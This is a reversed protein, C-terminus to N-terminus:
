AEPEAERVRSPRTSWQSLPEPEAEDVAIEPLPEPEPEAEAEDDAPEPEAEDVVPETEPEAEETDASDAPARQEAAAFEAQWAAWDVAIGDQSWSPAGDDAISAESVDDSTVADDVVPPTDAPFATSEAPEAEADAVDPGAAEADVEVEASESDAFLSSLGRVVRAPEPVVAAGADDQGHAGTGEQPDDDSDTEETAARQQVELWWPVPAAPAPAADARPAAADIGDVAASDATDPAAATDATGPFDAATGRGGWSDANEVEVALESSVWPRPPLESTPDLGPETPWATGTADQEDPGAVGASEVVDPGHPPPVPTPGEAFRALAALGTVASPAEPEPTVPEPAVPEPASRGASRRGFRGIGGRRHRSTPEQEEVEGAPKPEVYLRRFESVWEAVDLHERSDDEGASRSGEAPPLAGSGHDAPDASAGADIDVRSMPREDTDQPLAEDRM